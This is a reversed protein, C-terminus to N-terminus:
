KKLKKKNTAVALKLKDMAQSLETKVDDSLKVEDEEFRRLLELAAESNGFMVQEGVRRGMQSLAKAKEMMSTIAAVVADSLGPLGSYLAKNIEKDLELGEETIENIKTILNTRKKEIDKVMKRFAGVTMKQDVEGMAIPQSLEVLEETLKKGQSVLTDKDAIKKALDASLIQVAKQLPPLQQLIEKARDNAIKKLEDKSRGGVLNNENYGYKDFFESSLLTGNHHTGYESYLKRAQKEGVYKRDRALRLAESAAVQLVYRSAQVRNDFTSVFDRKNQESWLAMGEKGAKVLMESTENIM